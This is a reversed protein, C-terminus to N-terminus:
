FRGFRALRPHPSSNAPDASRSRAPTDLSVGHDRLWTHADGGITEDFVRQTADIINSMATAGVHDAMANS